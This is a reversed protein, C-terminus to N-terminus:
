SQIALGVMVRFSVGQKCLTTWSMGKPPFGRDQLCFDCSGGM